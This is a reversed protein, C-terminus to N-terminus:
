RRPREVRDPNLNIFPITDDRQAAEQVYRGACPWYCVLRCEGRLALQRKMPGVWIDTGCDACTMKTDDALGDPHPLHPRLDAPLRTVDVPPCPAVVTPNVPTWPLLHAAHGPGTERYFDAHHLANAGGNSHSSYGSSHRATGPTRRSTMIANQDPM